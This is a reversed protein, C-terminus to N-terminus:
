AAQPPALAPPLWPGTSFLRRLADLKDIGWKAATSLYSHVLAFETLGQLTRWCGGSSRMQVKVPRISREAQTNTFDVSGPNTVFRLIMDEFDRFRRSLRVADAATRTRRYYNGTFGESGASSPKLARPCPDTSPQDSSTSTARTPGNPCSS